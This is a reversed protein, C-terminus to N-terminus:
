GHEPQTRAHGPASVATSGMGSAVGENLTKRIAAPTHKICRWGNMYRRSFQCSCYTGDTWYDCANRTIRQAM